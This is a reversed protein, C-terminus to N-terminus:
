KRGASCRGSAKVLMTTRVFRVGVAIADVTRDEGLLRGGTVQAIWSLMRPSM